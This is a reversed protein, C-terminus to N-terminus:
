RAATSRRGPRRRVVGLGTTRARPTPSRGQDNVASQADIRGAASGPPATRQSRDQESGTWVDHGATNMVAAKVQEPRGARTRQRSWHRSAPRPRPRWRRAPSPSRGPQRHGHGRLQGHRRPRRRRAQGRRHSGHTGRSSFGSLTDTISPNIDKITAQLAGDFTVNLTGADVAPRLKDTGAKPLQFVPITTAAPSAPASCTSAPPSSRASPAPPRPTAPAVSPAAAVPPTTTTGSSGPSRARSRPPTPRPSRGLLRRRQRRPHRRRRRHRAAGTPGNNPWDYAVSFQGATIGAVTAPANVKLGDRLQLADVSSAVALSSVANGPTGGTDTLDGNNGMSIVSLVGHRPSSTSSTTRRTTRRPRLRSGLSM